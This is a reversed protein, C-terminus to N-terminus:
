APYCVLRMPNPPTSAGGPAVAAAGPTTIDALSVSGQYSAAAAGRSTPVTGAKAAAGQKPVLAGALAGAGAAAAAIAPGYPPPLVAAVSAVVPAADRIAGGVAKAADGIGNGVDSIFSGFDFGVVAGSSKLRALVSKAVQDALLLRAHEDASGRPVAGQTRALYLLVSHALTGPEPRFGSAHALVIESLRRVDPDPHQSAHQSAVKALPASISDAGVIRYGSVESALKAMAGTMAVGCVKAVDRADYGNLLAGLATFRRVHSEKVDGAARAWDCAAQVAGVVAQPAILSQSSASLALEGGLWPLDARAEFLGNSSNPRVSFAPRRQHAFMKPLVAPCVCMSPPPAVVTGDDAGSVEVSHPMGADKSPDYISGDSKQVIAHWRNPGSRVVRAFAGPDEGSARMSAVAYPALDDCDAWGRKLIRHAHDFREAGPPEPRWVLNTGLGADKIHPVQGREIQQQDLRSLAELGADLVDASVDNEPVAIRLDM